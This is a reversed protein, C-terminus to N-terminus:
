ELRCREIISHQEFLEYVLEKERMWAYAPPNHRLMRMYLRAADETRFSNMQYGDGVRAYKDDPPVRTTRGIVVYYTLDRAREWAGIPSDATGNWHLKAAPM